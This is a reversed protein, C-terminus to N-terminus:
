KSRKILSQYFEDMMFAVPAYKKIISEVAPQLGGRKGNVYEYLSMEWNDKGFHWTVISHLLNVITSCRDYTRHFEFFAAEEVSLDFSKSLSLGFDSFYLQKGDTLINEFHADFHIFNQSGMFDTVTKLIGDVLAVAGKCNKGLVLEASLWAHLTQPIHELFLVIYASAACTALLRERIATSGECYAVDQELHKSEDDSLLDPKACNLIRWHYLLPFSICKGSLVWDNAMLHSALERWVGFGASGVGYQYCLPLNFYNRTSHMNTQLRELDTLPIKKVFIQTDNIKIVSSNSGWKSHHFPVARLLIESLEENTLDSLTKSSSKYIEIRGDVVSLESVIVRVM